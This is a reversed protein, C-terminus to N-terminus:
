PPLVKIKTNTKGRPNANPLLPKLASCYNTKVVPPGFRIHAILAVAIALPGGQPSPADVGAEM